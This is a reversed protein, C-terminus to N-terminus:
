HGPQLRPGPPPARASRGPRAPQAAAVQATRAVFPHSRAAADPAHVLADALATFLGLGQLSVLMVETNVLRNRANCVAGGRCIWVLNSADGDLPELKDFVPMLDDALQVLRDVRGCRQAMMMLNHFEIQIDYLAYTDGQDKLRAGILQGRM